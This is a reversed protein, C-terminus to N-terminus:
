REGDARPHYISPKISIKCMSTRLLFPSTAQKRFSLRKLESFTILIQVESINGKLFILKKESNSASEHHMKQILFAYM